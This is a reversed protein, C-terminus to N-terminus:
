AGGGRARREALHQRGPKGCPCRGGAWFARLTPHLREGAGARDRSREASVLRNLMPRAADYLGPHEAKLHFTLAVARDFEEPCGPCKTM